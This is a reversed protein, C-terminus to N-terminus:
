RRQNLRFAQRGRERRCEDVLKGARKKQQETFSPNMLIKYFAEDARNVSGTHLAHIKLLQLWADFDDPAAAAQSEALEQATGLRGEALLEEVSRGAHTSEPPNGSLVEDRGPPLLRWADLSRWAFELFDEPIFRTENLRVLWQEAKRPDQQDQAQVRVLLLIAALNEPDKELLRKLTDEAEDFRGQERLQRAAKLPALGVAQPDATEFQGADVERGTEAAWRKLERVAFDKQDPTFTACACLRRTLGEAVRLHKERVATEVAFLWLPYTERRESLHRYATRYAKFVLGHERWHQLLILQPLKKAAPVREGFSGESFVLDVLLGGMLDNFSRHIVTHFACFGFLGFTFGLMPGGLPLGPVTGVRCGVRYLIMSIALALTVPITHRRMDQNNWCLWVAITVVGSLAALPWADLVPHGLGALYLVSTFVISTFFPIALQGITEQRWHWWLFVLGPVVLALAGGWTPVFHSLTQYDM